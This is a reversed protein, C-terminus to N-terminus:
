AHNTRAQFTGDTALPRLAFLLNAQSPPNIWVALPPSASVGLDGLLLALTRARMPSGNDAYLILPDRQVGHQTCTTEVRDKALVATAREAIM